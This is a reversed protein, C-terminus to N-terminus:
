PELLDDPVPIRKYFGFSNIGARSTMIINYSTVATKINMAREFEQALKIESDLAPPAPQRFWLSAQIGPRANADDAHGLADYFSAATFVAINSPHSEPTIIRM